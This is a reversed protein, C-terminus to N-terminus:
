RARKSTPQLPPRHPPPRLSSPGFIMHQTRYLALDEWRTTWLSVGTKDFDVLTEQYSGFLVFQISLPFPYRVAEALQVHQQLTQGPLLVQTGSGFVPGFRVIPGNMVPLFDDRRNFRWNCRWESAGCMQVVSCPDLQAPPVIITSAGTNRITFDIRLFGTIECYVFPTAVQIAVSQPDGGILSCSNNVTMGLSPTATVCKPDIMARLLLMLMSGHTLVNSWDIPGLESDANIVRIRHTAALAVGLLIMVVTVLM